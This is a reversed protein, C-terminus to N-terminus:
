KWCGAPSRVGAQDISLAGCEDKAQAGVPKAEIIFHDASESELSLTYNATGGSPSATSGLTAGQYSGNKLFHRELRQAEELIHGQAAVRRSQQVYKQYSPLAIASLIGLIAVVVMIEILTFGNKM